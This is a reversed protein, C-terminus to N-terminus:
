SGFSACASLIQSYDQGDNGTLYSSVHTNNNETNSRRIVNRDGNSNPHEGFLDILTTFWRPPPLSMSSRLICPCPPPKILPSSRSMEVLGGAYMGRLVQALPVFTTQNDDNGSFFSFFFVGSIVKRNPLSSPYVSPAVPCKGLPYM